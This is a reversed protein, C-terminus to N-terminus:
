QVRGQQQYTGAELTHRSFEDALLHNNIENFRAQIEASSNFRAINNAHRLQRALYAVSVIVVIAGVVEGVAGIATWDM